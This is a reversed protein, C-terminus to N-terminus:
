PWVSATFAMASALTAAKAMSSIGRMVRAWTM